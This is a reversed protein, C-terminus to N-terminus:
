RLIMLVMRVCLVNIHLVVKNEPDDLLTGHTEYIAWDVIHDCVCEGLGQERGLHLM